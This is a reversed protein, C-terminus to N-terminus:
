ALIHALALVWALGPSGPVRLQTLCAPIPVGVSSPVGMARTFALTWALIVRLDGLGRGPSAILM